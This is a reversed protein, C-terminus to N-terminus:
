QAMRELARALLRDALGEILDRKLLASRWNAPIGALGYLAGALQGYVAGTVDADLGLNVALLAGERFSTSHDLAWLVAELTQLINGGGDLDAAAKRRYSGLAIAEVPEKLGREDWLGPVPSYRPALLEQRGVGRLAGAMLAALYRCADLVIPSQQTIRASEAAYHIAERPEPLFFM